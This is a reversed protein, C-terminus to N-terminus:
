ETLMQFGALPRDRPIPVDGQSMQNIGMQNVDM